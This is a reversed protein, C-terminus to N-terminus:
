TDVLKIRYFVYFDHRALPAHTRIAVTGALLLTRVNDGFGGPQGQPNKKTLYHFNLHALLSRTM